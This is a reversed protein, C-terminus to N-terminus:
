RADGNRGTSVTDKRMVIIKQVHPPFWHQYAYEKTVHYGPVPGFGIQYTDRQVWWSSKSPDVKYSPDYFYLGNFEFGGDIEAAAVHEEQMLEGLAQWRVRNWTLYDHTGAISIVGWLTLLALGCAVSIKARHPEWAHLQGSAGAMAAAFLPLLPILYRDYFGYSLFPLLYICGCLVLLVGIAEDDNIDRRDRLLRAMFSAGHISLKAILMLAGIVGLLTLVLWFVDPLALLHDDLNLIISDRLSYPGLGWRGLMNGRDQMPLLLRMGYKMFFSLLFGASTAMVAVGTLMLLTAGRRHSQWLRKMRDSWFLSRATAAFFPLLFLGLYVPAYFGFVALTYAIRLPSDSHKLPTHSLETYQVPARDTVALWHNYTLLAALCIALPALAFLVKRKNLRPRSLMIAAFALPIALAVQRSLLAAVALAIGAALHMGSSSRVARALFVLSWLTAATFPIDTMFTHSLVFYAPYFALTLAVLLALWRPQQLDRVLVYAGFLGLLGAVLSSIRLATFSFGAPLSFLAGWLVHTFLSMVAWGLPRYDGTEILNQVARSYSWDDNLPFEGVPNVILSGLCWAVTILGLDLLLARSVFAFRSQSVTAVPTSM